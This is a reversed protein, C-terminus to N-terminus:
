GHLIVTKHVVALLFVLKLQFNDMRNMAIKFCM